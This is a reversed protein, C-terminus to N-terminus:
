RGGRENFVQMAQSLSRVGYVISTDNFVIAPVKKIKYRAVYEIADGGQEMSEFIPQWDPSNILDSFGMQFKELPTDTSRSVVPIRKKVERDIAQEAMSLADLRYVDVPIHRNDFSLDHEVSTDSTQFVTIKAVRDAFAPFSVLCITLSLLLRKM